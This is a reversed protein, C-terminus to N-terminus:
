DAPGSGCRGEAPGQMLEGGCPHAPCLREKMVKHFQERQAPTLNREEELLHALLLKQTKAQLAAIGDVERALVERDPSPASLLEVLRERRAAMEVRLPEVQAEMRAYSERMAKVQAPALDLRRSMECTPGGGRACQRVRYEGFAYAGLFLGNFLLSLLLVWRFWSRSSDLSM